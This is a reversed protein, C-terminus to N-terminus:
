VVKKRYLIRKTSLVVKFTFLDCYEIYHISIVEKLVHHISADRLTDRSCDCQRGTAESVLCPALLSVYCEGTM